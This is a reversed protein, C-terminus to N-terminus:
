NLNNKISVTSGEEVPHSFLKLHKHFFNGVRGKFRVSGLGRFSLTYKWM